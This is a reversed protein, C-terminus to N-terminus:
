IIFLIIYNIVFVDAQWFNILKEYLKAEDDERRKIFVFNM